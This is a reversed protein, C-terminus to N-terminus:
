SRSGRNGRLAFEPILSTPRVTETKRRLTLGVTGLMAALLLVALGSTVIELPRAGDSSAASVTWGVQTVAAPLGDRQLAVTAKWAGTAPRAIEAEYRGPEIGKLLVDTTTGSPAALTVSVGNVPAQELKVISRARVILRSQDPGAPLQEFTVFLGDVTATHLVTQRTATAIERATPVSTLVSAAGVAIVLVLIETAVVITFRRLSVPPWGVPRGLFRGVRAALRPNVLLTNIVALTLAVAILAVKGAVAGGYVTSAVSRLDPIHRGAEYLGTALLVVTAIAAMPSFARWASALIRGRLDPHHRMVPILCIALVTLGGAWVGAAVLHSASALAALASRSPLTSAHGAWAELCVVAALAVAAIQVRGGAGGPRTARVLAAAAIVIAIERALWLHGWPTGTLTAWTADFWLGLSSGGRQTLLFPTIAGTVVAVCVALAGIVLARRRLTNGIEGMSDFVRGSVALAGIALMIASLDLWRLILGPPDPADAAASAVAGPRTGAGFLLSGSTSHGDETSFVKWNLLYTAKALPQTGIRVIGGGDTDSVSATVDVRVGNSTQLEFTSASEAIPETFWLTLASRGIAVVGGNPPDSRELGGHAWAPSAGFLLVVFAALLIATVRSGVRLWGRTM